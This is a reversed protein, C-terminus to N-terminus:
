DRSGSFLSVADTYPKPSGTRGNSSIIRIVRIAGYVAATPKTATPRIPGIDPGNDTPATEGDVSV